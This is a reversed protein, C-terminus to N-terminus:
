DSDSHTLRYLRKKLRTKHSTEVHPEQILMPLLTTEVLPLLFLLHDNAMEELLFEVLRVALRLFGIDLLCRLVRPVGSEYFNFTHYTPPPPLLGGRSQHPDSDEVSNNNLHGCTDGNRTGTDFQSTATIIESTRYLELLAYREQWARHRDLVGRAEEHMRWGFFRLLVVYSYYVRDMLGPERVVVLDSELLPRRLLVEYLQSASWASEASSPAEAGAGRVGQSEQPSYQGNGPTRPISGQGPLATDSVNADAEDRRRCCPFLLPLLLHWHLRLFELGDSSALQVAYNEEAVEGLGTVVAPPLLTQHLGVVSLPSGRSLRSPSDSLVEVAAASASPPLAEHGNRGDTIPLVDDFVPDMLQTLGWMGRYFRISPHLQTFNGQRQGCQTDGGAAEDAAVSECHHQQADAEM